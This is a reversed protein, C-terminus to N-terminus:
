IATRLCRRRHRTRPASERIRVPPDHQLMDEKSFTKWSAGTGYGVVSTGPAECEARESQQLPHIPSTYAKCTPSRRLGTYKGVTRAPSRRSTSDTFSWRM